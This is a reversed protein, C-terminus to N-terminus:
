QSPFLGKLQDEEHKRQLANLLNTPDSQMTQEDGQELTKDDEPMEGKPYTMGMGQLRKLAALKAQKDDDINPM